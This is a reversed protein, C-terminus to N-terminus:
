LTGDLLRVALVEGKDSLARVMTREKGIATFDLRVDIGDRVLPVIDPLKLMENRMEDRTLPKRPPPPPQPDDEPKDPPLALSSAPDAMAVFRMTVRSLAEPTVSGARALAANVAAVQLSKGKAGEVTVMMDLTAESMAMRTPAMPVGDLLRGQADGLSAGAAGLLEDLNIAPM